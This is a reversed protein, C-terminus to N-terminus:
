RAPRALDWFLANFGLRIGPDAKWNYEKDWRVLPEAYWFLWHISTPRRFFVGAEYYTVGNTNEGSALLRVGWGRSIDSARLYSGYRDPVILEPAHAYIFTQSWETQDRDNRWKAYTSSRLLEHGYWRDFTAAGAYGISEKSDAFLKALPYFDWNGLQFERTWKLSAFAVPPVDLKVGIDFDLFGLFKYRVGASLNTEDRATRPAEDLKDSTVFIRLREEINPLSLAIEVDADLSLELGDSRDLSEVTAGLRFPAAPTPKFQAEEDAFLHDTSEVLGQTWVYVRDHAQDLRQRFDLPPAATASQRRIEEVSRDTPRYAQARVADGATTPQPLRIVDPPSDGRNTACGALGLLLAWAVLARAPRTGRDM